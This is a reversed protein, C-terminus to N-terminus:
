SISISVYELKFKSCNYQIGYPTLILDKAATRSIHEMHPFEASIEITQTIQYQQISGGATDM